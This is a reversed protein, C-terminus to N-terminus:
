KKQGVFFTFQTPEVQISVTLIKQDGFGQIKKWTGANHNQYFLKDVGVEEILKIGSIETTSKVPLYRTIVMDYTQHGSKSVKLTPLKGTEVAECSIDLFASTM